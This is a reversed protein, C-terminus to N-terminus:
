VKALIEPTFEIKQGRDITGRILGQAIYNEVHDAIYRRIPRAGYEPSYANKVVHELLAKSVVVEVEKVELRKNLDKILMEAVDLLQDATLPKFIVVGDFRNLFEPRFLNNKQVYEMVAEKTAGTQRNKAAERVLEAGANSTAIIMTNAFSVKRGLADTLNGEDLVQLFLDLVKPHAKEIEDLLVISFPKSMIAETLLGGQNQDSDGILRNISHVEQFESMDMRIIHDESGFYVGALAKTTETKGVGTPGLFLFSGLPRKQSGIGSRARRLANSIDSVAEDQGVIRNHLLSEMNLLLDKEESKIQEVPIQTRDTVVRQVHEPLAIRNRSTTNVYIATADLIELSKEPNPLNQILRTSLTVIEVLAQYTFYIGTKNQLKAAHDEVISLTEDFGPEELEIKGFWRQLEANKAITTQFGQQTTLGIIRLRSKLFPILAETANVRGVEKKSDFFADIDNVVLIINEAWLAESFLLQIKDLSSSGSGQNGLVASSDIQVLRKYQLPRLVEGSNIMAAFNEITTHRGVGPAGVLVINHTGDVLLREIQNIFKGHGYIHEPPLISVVETLDRGVKDLNPTYASSWNKGVGKVRLLKEPDWFRMADEFVQMSKKQWLGVRVLDKEHIQYDFMIKSFNSDLSSLAPLMSSLGIEVQGQDMMFKVASELLQKLDVAVPISYVKDIKEAFAQSDINLRKLIWRFERSGLLFKVLRAGDILNGNLSHYLASATLFDLLKGPSAENALMQQLYFTSRKARLHNIFLLLIFLVIGVGTALESIQWLENRGFFEAMAAGFFSILIVITLAWKIIRRRFIIEIRIAPLYGSQSIENM